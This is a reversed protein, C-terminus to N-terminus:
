YVCDLLKLVIRCPIYCSLQVRTCVGYVLRLLCPIYGEKRGTISFKFKTTSFKATSYGTFKPVLNILAVLYVVRMDFTISLTHLM